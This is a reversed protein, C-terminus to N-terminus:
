LIQVYVYKTDIAAKWVDDDYTNPHPDGIVHLLFFYPSLSSLASLSSLPFFCAKSFCAQFNKYQYPHYSYSLLLM